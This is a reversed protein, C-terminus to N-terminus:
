LYVYGPSFSACAVKECKGGHALSLTRISCQCVIALARCLSSPVNTSQQYWLLSPTRFTTDVRSFSFPKGEVPWTCSQPKIRLQEPVQFLHRVVLKKESPWTQYESLLTSKLALVRQYNSHIMWNLITSPNPSKKRGEIGRKMRGAAVPWPLPSLRVSTIFNCSTHHYLFEGALNVSYM